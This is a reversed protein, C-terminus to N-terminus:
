SWSISMECYEAGDCVCKVEEAEIDTGGSLEVMKRGWGLLNRCFERHPLEYGVIRMVCSNSKGGPLIVIEGTDHFASWLMPTRSLTDEPREKVKSKHITSLGLQATLEGLTEMVMPDKARLARYTAQNLEKMIEAPYWSSSIVSGDTLVKRAEEGIGALVAQFSEEGYRERMMALRSLLAVGKVKAM